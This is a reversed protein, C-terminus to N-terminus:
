EGVKAAKAKRKTKAPAAKKKAAWRAKMRASAEKRQAATFKRRGKKKPAATKPRVWDPMNADDAIKRPRGRRKATGGELARLAADLRDREARLLAIIHETPM